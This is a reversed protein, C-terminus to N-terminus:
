FVIQSVCISNYFPTVETRYGAIEPISKNSKGDYRVTIVPYMQKDRFLQDENEILKNCEIICTSKNFQKCSMNMATLCIIAGNLTIIDDGFVYKSLNINSEIRVRQGNPIYIKRGYCKFFKSIYSKLEGSSEWTTNKVALKLSIPQYTGDKKYFLLDGKNITGHSRRTITKVHEVKVIDRFIKTNGNAGRFVFNSFGSDILNQIKNLFVVENKIGYNNVAM